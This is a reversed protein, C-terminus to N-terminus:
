KSFGEDTSRFEGRESGEKLETSKHTSKCIHCTCALTLFNISMQSRELVKGAAM